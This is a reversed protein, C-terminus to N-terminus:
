VLKNVESYLLDVEGPNSSDIEIVPMFDIKSFISKAWTFRELSDINSLDGGLKRKEIRQLVEIEPVTILFVKVPINNKVLNETLRKLPVKFEARSFTGSIIIPKGQIVLDEARQCLETYARAMIDLESGPKLMKVESIGNQLQLIELRVADVDLHLINFRSALDKAM